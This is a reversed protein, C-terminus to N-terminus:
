LEILTDIRHQLEGHTDMAAMRKAVFGHAPEDADTSGAAQALPEAIWLHGTARGARGVTTGSRSMADLAGALGPPFRTVEVGDLDAFAEDDPGV